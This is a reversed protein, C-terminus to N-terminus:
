RGDIARRKVEVGAFEPNRWVDLFVVRVLVGRVGDRELQITSAIEPRHPREAGVETRTVVVTGRQEQAPLGLPHRPPADVVQHLSQRVPGTDFWVDVSVTTIQAVHTGVREPMADHPPHEPRSPCYGRRRVSSAVARTLESSLAATRGSRCLM